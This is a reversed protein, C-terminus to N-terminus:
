NQLVLACCTIVPGIAFILSFTVGASPVIFSDLLMDAFSIRAFLAQILLFLPSLNKLTYLQLVIHIILDPIIFYSNSESPLLKQSTHVFGFVIDITRQNVRKFEELNLAM